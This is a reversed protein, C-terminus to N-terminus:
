LTEGSSSSSSDDSMGRGFGGNGPGGGFGGGGNGSDSNGSDDTGPMAGGGMGGMGGGMMSNTLETVEEGNVIVTGGNLEGTVDYDFPSNATIDVTGGNIYLSGNADLADTDGQGMVITLEGGNIELIVEYATSKSTANIGDDSASIDITGGNIQVYTGEIGEVATIDFTGGDITVTTTGQIGDDDAEIKFTGGSIYVSGVTTDDSYESHLADKGSTITFTGDCISISDNAEIGDEAATIVYTGGTMKIDDKGSIGNGQASTINLTGLGNLTIDDKAFIVADLNTDGDATYTGTVSLNNESGETTTIFVKDASKVYIALADTNTITVGDLVIQVKAEDAEVTITVEAAEGSIVYIGEETITIDEGDAVTMYTADTLDAEQEMDRDTFIDESDSTSTTVATDSGSDSSGSETSASSSSTSSTSNSSASGTSASGCGIATVGVMTSVAVIALLKKIKMNKM